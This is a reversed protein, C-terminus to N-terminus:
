SLAKLTKLESGSFNVKLVSKHLKNMVQAVNLFSALGLGRRCPRCAMWATVQGVFGPEGQLEALALGISTAGKLGWGGPGLASISLWLKHTPSRGGM